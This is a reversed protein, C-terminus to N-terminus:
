SSQTEITRTAAFLATDLQLLLVNTSLYTEWSRQVEVRRISRIAQLLPSGFWDFSFGGLALSIFMDFRSVSWSRSSLQGSVFMIVIVAEANGELM